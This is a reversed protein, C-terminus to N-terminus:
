VVRKELWKGRKYRISFLLARFVWDVYMGIWIGLVGLGLTGAFFYSSAVRFVWMSFVSVEMTYKADGAARLVNPLAFSLPWILAACVAFSILLQAAIGEAAESLAFCSVIPKVLLLLAANTILMGAYALLLLRKSYYRAQEKEGAGICRGIVTVMALGIAIGPINAFGAVSNAVANAAIAATGFTAALSSVLLKGIQFMGNEVGSPIGIKLIKGIVDRQPKMCGPTTICLPNDKRGLLVVMVLASVIRAVLTAVAAGFVGLGFGFILIANGGINIVNMVLSTYMSIKSNGIARFLAAGANYVGLFPYSIASVIFYIQANEMVDAEIQGFIARLLFRHSFLVAVMVTGAVVLMIFMLQGASLKARDPMKKGIYQSCVVAGGTALASLIQILLISISDVLSVGSVAAEGCSSVMLTDFLGISIALTQEIVLPIILKKLDERTFLLQEM